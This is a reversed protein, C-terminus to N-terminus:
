TGSSLVPRMSSDERAGSRHDPPRADRQDLPHDAANYYLEIADEHDLGLGSSSACSRSSTTASCRARGASGSTTARGGPGSGRPASGSTTPTNSPTRWATPPASGSSSASGGTPCARPAGSTSTLTITSADVHLRGPDELPQTPVLLEPFFRESSGRWSRALIPWAPFSSPAPAVRGINSPDQELAAAGQQEVSGGLLQHGVLGFPKITVRGEADVLVGDDFADSLDNSRRPGVRISPAVGHLRGRGPCSSSAAAM